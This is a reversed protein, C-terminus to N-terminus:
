IIWVHLSLLFCLWAICRSHVLTSLAPLGGRAQVAFFFESFTKDASVAPEFQQFGAAEGDPGVIPKLEMPESWHQLLFLLRMQRASYRELTAQITVFNKLSKSMKRGEIHLHGTHLFFNVWQPTKWYAESQALQNEHHPFALDVRHQPPPLM